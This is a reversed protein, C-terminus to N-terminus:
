CLGGRSSRLHPPKHTLRRWGQGRVRIFQYIHCLCKITGSVKRSSNKTKRYSILRYFVLSAKTIHTSLFTMVHEKFNQILHFFEFWFEFEKEFNQNVLDLKSLSLEQSNCLFSWISKKSYFFQWGEFICTAKYSYQEIIKLEVPQVSTYSVFDVGTYFKSQSFRNWKEMQSSVRWILTPSPTIKYKRYPM